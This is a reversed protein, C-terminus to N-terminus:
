STYLGKPKNSNIFSYDFDARERKEVESTKITEINMEELLKLATQREESKMGKWDLIAYAIKERTKSIAEQLKEKTLPLAYELIIHSVAYESNLQIKNFSPCYHKGGIGIAPIFGSKNKEDFSKIAKSIVSAILEGAKKDQWEEKSTGIEIFCCPKEIYPGHHTCELTTEYGLNVKENEENLIKFIHKLFFASTPCIQNEKGGFENKNWNGPAHLSFTKRHEQSQHKTAFIFFDYDKFEPNKDLNEAFISEEKIMKAKVGQKELQRFINKGAEDKESTIIAFKM